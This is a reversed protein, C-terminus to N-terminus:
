LQLIFKGFRQSQLSRRQGFYNPCSYGDIKVSLDHMCLCLYGRETDPAVRCGADIAGCNVNACKNM